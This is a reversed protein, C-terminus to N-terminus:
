PLSSSLVLHKYHINVPLNDLYTLKHERSLALGLSHTLVPTTYHPSQLASLPCICTILHWNPDCLHLKHCYEGKRFPSKWPQLPIIAFTWYPTSPPHLRLLVSGHLLGFAMLSFACQFFTPFGSTQPLTLPCPHCLLRVSSSPHHIVTSCLYHPSLTAGIPRLGSASGPSQCM